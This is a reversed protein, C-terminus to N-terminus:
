NGNPFPHVLVLRHHFRIAIECLPFTKNKVWFKADALTKNLELGVVHWSCGINKDSKRFEGAWKWTESFMARHLKRVFQETFIDDTTGRAWLMGTFINQAEWENLSGQTTVSTPILADLEEAELPTAGLPYTLKIAM